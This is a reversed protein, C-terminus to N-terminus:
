EEGREEVGSLTSCWSEVSRVRSSSTVGERGPSSAAVTTTSSDTVAAGGEGGAGMERGSAPPTSTCGWGAGPSSSWWGGDVWFVTMIGLMVGTFSGAWRGGEATPERGTSQISWRCPLRDRVRGEEM